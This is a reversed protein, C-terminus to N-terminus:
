SIFVCHMELKNQNNFEMKFQQGNRLVDSYFAFQSTLLFLNLLFALLMPQTVYGFSLRKLRGKACIYFLSDSIYTEGGFM